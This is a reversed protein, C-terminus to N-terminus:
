RKEREQMDGGTFRRDNAGIGASIGRADKRGRWGVDSGIGEVRSSAIPVTEISAKM